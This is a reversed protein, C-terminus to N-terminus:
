DADVIFDLRAAANSLAAVGVLELYQAASLQDRVGRAGRQLPAGQSRITDRAFSLAAAELPDLVPSGLHALIEDLDERKLGEPELLRRAERESREAGLGRAVVAAVLGKLRRSLIPSEWFDDLTRRFFHAFPLPAMANVMYAWPGSQAEPALPENFGRKSLRRLNWGIFPRLLRNRLRDAYQETARTPIAALTTIRNGALATVAFAALEKIEHDSYGAGRLADVDARTPPPDSRSVRRAFELGAKQEPTLDLNFSTEELQRIREESMGGLRLLARQSAYCYRCSNDQSVAMFVLEVFRDDLHAIVGASHNGTLVMRALWPCSALYPLYPPVLGLARRALAELESDRVPDVLPREWDMQQAITV